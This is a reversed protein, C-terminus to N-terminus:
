HGCALPDAIECTGSTATPNGTVCRAPPLCPPGSVTDCPGGDPAAAKCVGNSQGLVTVCASADTCRVYTGNVYGCQAGVSAYGVEACTDTRADCYLGADFDCGPATYGSPACPTGATTGAPECRGATAADPRVCWLGTGCLHDTDCADGNSGLPQCELNDSVCVLGHSCSVEACSSGPQVPPACTGCTTGRVIACYAGSVCQVTQSCADGVTRTGAHLCPIGTLFEECSAATAAAACNEVDATTNTVGPATLYPLCSLQQRAQCTAADGYFTVVANQVCQDEKQCSAVALDSCAREASTQGQAGSGSGGGGGGCGMVSAAFGVVLAIWVGPHTASTWAAPVHGVISRAQM